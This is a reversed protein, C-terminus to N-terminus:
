EPEGTTVVELRGAEVEYFDSEGDEVIVIGREEILDAVTGAFAHHHIDSANPEPVLVGKGVTIPKGNQDNM